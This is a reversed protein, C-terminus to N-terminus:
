EPSAAPSALAARLRGSVPGPDVGELGFPKGNDLLVPCGLNGEVFRGTLPELISSVIVVRRPKLSRRIRTFLAPLREELVAQIAPRGSVDAAPPCELAHVLFFGQRQFDTLVAVAAKGTYPLGLADLLRAAEGHFTNPVAYLFEADAEPPVAGLLLASIHIPRFRTSWELRQLRKAIHEPSSTQGCGDCQMLNPTAM